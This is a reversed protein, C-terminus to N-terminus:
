SSLEWVAHAMADSHLNLAKENVNSFDDCKSHYCSDYPEGAKGGWEKAQEETMVEGAGTFTGGVTV